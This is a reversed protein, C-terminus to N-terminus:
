SPIRRDEQSYAHKSNNIDIGVAANRKAPCTHLMFITNITVLDRKMQVTACQTQDPRPGATKDGSTGHGSGQAPFDARANTAHLRLKM